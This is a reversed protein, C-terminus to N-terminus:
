AHPQTVHTPQFRKSAAQPAGAFLIKTV